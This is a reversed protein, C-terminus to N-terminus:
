RGIIEGMHALAEGFRNNAEQLNYIEEWLLEVIGTPMHAPMEPKHPPPEPIAKLKEGLGFCKKSLEATTRIDERLRNLLKDFESEAVGNFSKTTTDM